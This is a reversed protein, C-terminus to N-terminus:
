ARMQLPVHENGMFLCMNESPYTMLANLFIANDQHWRAKWTLKIAGRLARPVLPCPRYRNATSNTHRSRPARRKSSRVPINMASILYKLTFLSPIRFNVHFTIATGDNEIGSGPARPKPKTEVKDKPPEHAIHGVVRQPVRGERQM